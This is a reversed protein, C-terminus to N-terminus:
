IETKAFSPYIRYFMAYNELTKLGEEMTEISCPAFGLKTKLYEGISVEGVTELNIPLEADIVMRERASLSPVNIHIPDSWDINKFQFNEIRSNAFFARKNIENKTDLLIGTLTFMQNGDQYSYASLPQFHFGTRSLGSLSRKLIKLLTKPYNENSIDEETIEENWLDDLRQSLKKARFASPAQGPPTNRAIESPQANLTIKVVDLNSLKSILDKFEIIQERIKASKTYDLWVIAPSDLEVFKDIFDGSTGQFHNIFHAPYNFKQRALVNEDMEISTMKSIRLASHIEKFDEAFPGGFGIYRYDSINVHLAIRRLLEIFLKREINKNTRLHYAISSGSM